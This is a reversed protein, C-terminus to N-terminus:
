SAKRTKRQQRVKPGIADPPAVAAPRAPPTPEDDVGKFTLPAIEAVVQEFPRDDGARKKALYALMVVDSLEFERAAWRRAWGPRLHRDLLLVEDGRFSEPREDFEYRQGDVEFQLM